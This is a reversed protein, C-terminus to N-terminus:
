TPWRLDPRYMRPWYGCPQGWAFIECGGGSARACRPLKSIIARSVAGTPAIWVLDGHQNLAAHVATAAEDADPTGVTTDNFFHISRREVVHLTEGVWSCCKSGSGPEFPPVGLEEALTAGVPSDVWVRHWRLPDLGDFWFLMSDRVLAAVECYHIISDWIDEFFRGEDIYVINSLGVRGAGSLYVDHGMGSLVEWRVADATDHSTTEGRTRAQSERAQAHSGYYLGTYMGQGGIFHMPKDRWVDRGQNSQPQTQAYIGFFIGPHVELGGMLEEARIATDNLPHRKNEFMKRLQDPPVTHALDRHLGLSEFVSLAQDSLVERMSNVLRTRHKKSHKDMTLKGDQM